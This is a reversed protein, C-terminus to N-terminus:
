HTRHALTGVVNVLRHPEIPKSIFTAFGASVARDRDEVRAHATVAVAPVDGGRQAGLARVRRLLEYGDAGPMAIDTVLVDPQWHEIAEIAEEASAVAKTEAGCDALVTAFLEREDPMDDVVLVRIGDLRRADAAQAPETWVAFPRTQIPLRVTFTAGQGEGGSEASVTGGHLETLHKVISLGLGLGGHSRTTTADAQRFADFVHPLFSPAIGCGTDSVTIQASGGVRELRVDIRGGAPTFKVANSLLNWVVQQLRDPDGAVPGSTPELRADIAINKGTAAPRMVDIAADVTRVLDVSRFELHLKGSIIRSLDLLEDILQVQAKANREITELAKESREGTWHGSRLMRTWGLISNLPTRLEHSLVVLFEDKMRNASEAEARAAQERILRVRQEEARKRETIDRIASAVFRGVETELPSLSIEVPFESGDQRRGYLELGAGMPRARPAAFFGTRHGVHGARLREPVLMEVSQGLLTERPYGFLRETQANVVVIKGNEDVIVMADPASELLDRFKAEARRRDTIDRIASVALVGEETPLPSLSIEVPFVTGNRRRGYLDLGAGMPRTGPEAFFSTRHGVHGARFREPVLIEVPQGILEDRVYGFMRETQPNVLVIKGKRDVIVIADPASQLLGQFKAEARIREGDKRRRVTEYHKIPEGRRLRDLLAPLEDPQGLPVLLMIPEGIVEDARYGYIREAGVNWSTIVGDLTKGIIADDSSEVIAAIRQLAERTRNRETMDRIAAVAFTHGELALPSLSIEVPFEAGDKRQGFLDLGVGMPRVGPHAFYGARHRLHAGRYRAPILSEIQMGLLADPTYGFLAEALANALVIGGKQDVVLMADPAAELFTKLSARVSDPQM